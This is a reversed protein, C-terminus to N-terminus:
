VNKTANMKQHLDTVLAQVSIPELLLALELNQTTTGLFINMAAHLRWKRNMRVFINNLAV